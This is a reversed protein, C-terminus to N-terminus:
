MIFSCYAGYVSYFIDFPESLDVLFIAIEIVLFLKVLSLIALTELCM